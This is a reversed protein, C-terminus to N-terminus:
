HYLSLVERDGNIILIGKHRENTMLISSMATMKTNFSSVCPESGILIVNRLNQKRQRMPSIGVCKIYVPYSKVQWSDLILRHVNGILGLAAARGRIWLYPFLMKILTDAAAMQYGTWWKRNNKKEPIQWCTVWVLLLYWSRRHRKPIFSQSKCSTFTKMSKISQNAYLYDM